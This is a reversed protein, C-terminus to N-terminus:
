CWPLKRRWVEEEEEAAERARRAEDMIEEESRLGVPTECGRLGIFKGIRRRKEELGLSPDWSVPCPYHYTWRCPTRQHYFHALSELEADTLLWFGLLTSPFSPHVDGTTLQVLPALPLAMERLKRALAPRQGNSRHASFLEPARALRPSAPPPPTHPTTSPQAPFSTKSSSSSSSAASTSCGGPLADPFSVDMPSACTSAQSLVSGVPTPSTSLDTEMPITSPQNDLAEGAPCSLRRHRHFPM